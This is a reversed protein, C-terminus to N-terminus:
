ESLFSGLAGLVVELLLGILKCRCGDRDLLTISVSHGGLGM